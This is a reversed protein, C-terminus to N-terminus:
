MSAGEATRDALRILNLVGTSTGIASSATAMSPTAPNHRIEWIENFECGLTTIPNQWIM